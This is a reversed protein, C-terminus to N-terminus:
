LEAVFKKFEELKGSDSYIVIDFFAYEKGSIACWIMRFMRRLYNRFPRQNAFFSPIVHSLYMITEDGDDYNVFNFVLSEDMGECNLVFEKRESKHVM